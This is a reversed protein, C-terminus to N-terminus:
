RFRYATSLVFARPPQPVLGWGQGTYIRRNGLNVGNLQVRWPGREYYVAGDVRLYSGLKVPINPLQTGRNGSAVIGLGLSWGPLQLPELALKSFVGGSHRAAGVLRDGVPLSNDEVVKADLWTYAATLQWWPTLQGALDLELGRSRQRGSVVSFDRDAPDPTLVQRRDLQFVTATFSAREDLLAQKVGLEFQRGTEPPFVGGGRARGSNPSFSRSYSAYLATGPVPELVVGLRPSTAGLRREAAAADGDLASSVRMRDHRLGLLLKLRENVEVFDQLYVADTRLRATSAPYTTEYPGTLSGDYDPELLDFPTAPAAEFPEDRAHKQVRDYGVILRHLVGGAHLLGRLEFQGAKDEVSGGTRQSYREITRGDAALGPYNLQYQETRRGYSRGFFGGVRLSWVADIAHTLEARVTHTNLEAHALQDCILQKRIPQALMPPEPATDFCRSGYRTRVASLELEAQTASSLRASIVPTIAFLRDPRRGPFDRFTHDTQVALNVRGLLADGGTAGAPDLPGIPGNVDVTARGYGFSGGSLEVTAFREALPRKTVTNALGSIASSAGYLLAAPGKLFEVREISSTDTVAAFGELRYGNLTSGAGYTSFGRIFYSQGNPTYATSERAVGAVYDAVQTVNRTGLDQMLEAPIVKISLPQEQLPLDIRTGTASRTAAYGTVPGTATESEASARVRVQPLTADNAAGTALGPASPQPAATAPAGRRLRYTGPGDRVAELGSGALLAALGDETDYHGALGASTKGATAAGDIALLIGASAAYRNLAEDLTGAPIDYRRVPTPAAPGAAPGTTQETADGTAEGTSAAAGQARADAAWPPMAVLALVLAASPALRRGPRHPRQAAQRPHRPGPAQQRHLSPAPLPGTPLPHPPSTRIDSPM